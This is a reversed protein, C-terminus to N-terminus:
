RRPSKSRSKSASSPLDPSFTLAEAPILDESVGHMAVIADIAAHGVLWESGNWVRTYCGHKPPRGPLRLWNGYRGAAEPLVRARGFARSGELGPGALTM